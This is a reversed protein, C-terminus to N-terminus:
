GIDGAQNIADFIDNLANKETPHADAAQLLQNVTYTGPTLGLAAADAGGITFTHTGTGGASFNFGFAGGCEGPNSTTSTVYAALATGLVQAQWKMGSQGFLVLFDAAVQANTQGTLNPWPPVALTGFLHPFALALTNALLTSNPGGNLCKISAQGNQNHWFGITATDGKSIPPTPVSNATIELAGGDICLSDCNSVAGPVTAIQADTMYGGVFFNAASGGSPVHAPDWPSPVCLSGEGAGNYTTSTCAVLTKTSGNHLTDAYGLGLKFLTTSLSPTVDTYAVGEQHILGGPDLNFGDIPNAGTTTYVLDASTIAHNATAVFVQVPCSGATGVGNCEQTNPPTSNVRDSTDFNGGVGTLFGVQTLVLTNNAPLPNPVGGLNWIPMDCSTGTDCYSVANPATGVVVEIHFISVQANAAVPAVLALAFIGLCAFILRPRVNTMHM